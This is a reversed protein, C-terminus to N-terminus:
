EPEAPWEALDPIDKVCDPPDGHEDQYGISMSAFTHYVLDYARRTIIEIYRAHEDDEPHHLPIHGATVDIWYGETQSLLEEWLLRAFGQFHTDREDMAPNGKRGANIHM